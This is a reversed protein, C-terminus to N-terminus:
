AWRRLGAAPFGAVPSSLWLGVMAWVGRCIGLVKRNSMQPAVWM